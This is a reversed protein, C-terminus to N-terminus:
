QAFSGLKEDEQIYSVLNSIQKIYNKEEIAFRKSKQGFNNLVIDSLNMHYLIGNKISIKDDNELFFLKDSYEDPIGLLRTTLVPTGSTMYELIKSPFSFKTFEHNLPRPNILLRASKEFDLIQENPVNGFFKIRQDNHSQEIIYSTLDGYGFLWLEYNEQLESFAEILTKIGFKDYLAGAYMIANKNELFYNDTDDILKIDTFGEIIFHKMKPFHISMYKTIFVLYNNMKTSINTIFVLLPIFTNKLKNSSKTYTFIYAPLDPVFSIIKLNPFFKFPIMPLLFPFYLFGFFIYKKENLNFLYWKLTFYLVYLGICLQKLLFLNIYPIYKTNNTNYKTNNFFIIKCDPFMGIPVLFLNTSNPLVSIFGDSVMKSYKIAAVSIQSTNNSNRNILEILKNNAYIGIFLAKM